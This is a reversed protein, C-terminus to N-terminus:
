VILEEKSGNPSAGILRFDYSTRPLETAIYIDPDSCGEGQCCEGKTDIEELSKLLIIFILFKLKYLKIKNWINNIMM